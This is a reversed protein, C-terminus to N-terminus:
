TTHPEMPNNHYMATTYTHELTVPATAMASAVDGDATDTPYAPNIKYPKYLDARDVSLEVDHPEQAYTVQVTGAAHRAVGSTEAIVAGIIQGRFAVEDSQLVALENDETSALREANDATLVTIVGDIAQASTTDMGTVRGRAITAQILHCYAPKGLPGEYAYPATGTVKLRGDRRLLDRGIARGHLATM